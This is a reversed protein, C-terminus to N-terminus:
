KGPDRENSTSISQQHFHKVLQRYLEKVESMGVALFISIAGAAFFIVIRWILALEAPPFLHTFVLWVALVIVSRAFTLAYAARNMGLLKAGHFNIAIVVIYAANAWVAGPLGFKLALPVMAACLGLGGIIGWVANVKPKGLGLMLFFGSAGLSYVGYIFTLLPLLASFVASTDGTVVIKAVIDAWYILPLAVLLVAIGNLRTAKTFVRRVHALNGDAMEASVAPTIVKIPIASLENVKIAISTAAAYVGSVAPGLIANVLIRDMQGFLSSGLSSVWHQAGFRWLNGAELKSFIIQKYKIGLVRSTVFVHALIGILSIFLLWYFLMSLEGKQWAILVAGAQLLVTVATDIFAQLDYRQYAAEISAFFLMLIKPLVIFASIRLSTLLMPEASFERFTNTILPTFFFYLLSFTVGFGVVMTLGTGISRNISQEDKLALFGALRYLLATSVGMEALTLLGIQANITTWIGYRDIGLLRILLPIAALNVVLRIMGGVSVSLSNKRLNM